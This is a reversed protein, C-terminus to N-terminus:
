KEGEPDIGKLECIAVRILEGLDMAQKRTLQDCDIGQSTLYNSTVKNAVNKHADNTNPTFFGEALNNIFKKVGAAGVVQNDYDEPSMSLPKLKITAANQQAKYKAAYAQERKAIEEDSPRVYPEESKVESSKETKAKSKYKSEKIRRVKREQRATTATTGEVSIGDVFETWAQQDILEKIEPVTIEVNVKGEIKM